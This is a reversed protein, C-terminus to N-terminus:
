NTIGILKLFRQFKEKALPKTLGDAIMDDIPIYDVNIRGQRQLDCVYHYAVDIHKSRESVQRNKVLSIAGNNDGKLEMKVKSSDIINLSMQRCTSDVIEPYGLETFLGTLWVAQRSCESLAM